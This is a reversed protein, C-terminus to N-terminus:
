RAFVGSMIETAYALRRRNQVYIALLFHNQVCVALINLAGNTRACLKSIADLLLRKKVWDAAQACNCAIYENKNSTWNHVSFVLTSLRRARAQPGDIEGINGPRM